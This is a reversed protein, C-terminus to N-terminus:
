GDRPKKGFSTIDKMFDELKSLLDLEFKTDDDDDICNDQDFPDLMEDITDVVFGRLILHGNDSYTPPARSPGSANYPANMTTAMSGSGHRSDDGCSWDPVWSPLDYHQPLPAASSLIELSGTQAIVAFATSKYIAPVSLSYNPEAVDDRALALVAYVKDRHDTAQLYRLRYLLRSLSVRHGKQILERTFAQWVAADEFNTLIRDINYLHPDDRYRAACCSLHRALWALVAELDEWTVTRDGLHITLNRALAVEQVVWVRQWWPNEALYQLLKFDDLRTPDNLFTGKRLTGFIPMEYYHQGHSFLQLLDLARYGTESGPGLWVLVMKARSYIDRMLAVQQSKEEVNRQDICIADIWLMRAVEQSRLHWLASELNTTIDLVHNGVRVPLTVDPNGWVYSLAEYAPDDDLSVTVLECCIRDSFAGPFLPVLRIENQAVQVTDVVKRFWDQLIYPIDRITDGHPLLDWGRAGYRSYNLWSGFILYALLSMFLIFFFWSFFGWGGSKREESKADECAYKTDWQLRWIGVDDTEQHSFHKLKGGHGDDWDKAPEKEDGGEKEDRKETPGDEERLCLFEIVAKQKKKLYEGGHLEVRVGEQESDAASSSTKLRTYKPDISGGTTATYQGAIPIVSFPVIAKNPGVVQQVACATTGSPCREEKPVDKPKLVNCLDLTLTTNLHSVPPHDELISITHIGGLPKFNFHIGDTLVNECDWSIAAAFTPLFLAASLLSNPVSSASRMVPSPGLAASLDLTFWYHCVQRGTTHSLNNYIKVVSSECTATQYKLQHEKGVSTIEDM